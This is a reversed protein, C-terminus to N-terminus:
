DEKAPAQTTRPEVREAHEELASADLTDADENPTAEAPPMPRFPRSATFVKVPSVQAESM